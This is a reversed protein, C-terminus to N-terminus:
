EGEEGAERLAARMVEESIRINASRLEEFIGQAVPILGRKKALVVVGLTGLTAVGFSGACRRAALDDLIVLSDPEALASQIVASEGPGLDWALVGESLPPDATTTIWTSCDSESLPSAHAPNRILEEVVSRPISIQGFLERLVQLRNVRHLLIIPSSDVFVRGPM